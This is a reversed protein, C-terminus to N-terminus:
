CSFWSEYMDKTPIQLLEDLAKWDGAATYLLYDNDPALYKFSYAGMVLSLCIRTKAGELVIEMELSSLTFVSQYGKLMHSVADIANIGQKVAEIMIYAVAIAIDLARCSVDLEGFDLFGKFEVQGDPSHEVLINHENLDGHIVQTELQELKPVLEQKFRLAIEQVLARRSDDEITHCYKM